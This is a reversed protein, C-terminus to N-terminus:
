KTIECHYMANVNQLVMDEILRGTSIFSSGGSLVSKRAKEKMEQVKKYVESDRKMLQTIGREIEDAMVLDDCGNRYDLRLEVAIGFERVMMFANLQQEAYIPWTLIPVGFWLSELISNWGCHSVFGGIAKHALVEVQPAWGCIMGKDEMWELFGEPVARDANDKTPPSRM